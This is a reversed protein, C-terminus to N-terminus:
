GGPVRLADVYSPNQNRTSRIPRNIVTSPTQIKARQHKNVEKDVPMVAEDAMKSQENPTMQTTVTTPDPRRGLNPRSAEVFDDRLHAIKCLSWHFIGEGVTM